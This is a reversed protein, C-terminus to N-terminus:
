HSGVVRIDVGTEELTSVCWRSLTSNSIPKKPKVFSLM